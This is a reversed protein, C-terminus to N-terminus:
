NDAHIWCADTYTRISRSGLFLVDPYLQCSFFILVKTSLMLAQAHESM